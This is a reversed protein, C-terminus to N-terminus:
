ASTPEEGTAVPRRSDACWESWSGPYLRPASVGAAVAALILHCATVGSGCYAVAGRGAADTTVGEFRTALRDVPLFRGDEGLSEACPLSRAGPIHGAVPDLPEEEGLYRPRARADLLVPASAPDRLADGLADLSMVADADYRGRWRSPAATEVGATVPYGAETWAPWGGDLVAVTEVGAYRLMWWLRAAIRGGADDYVVVRQDEAVGLRGILGDIADCSPLPHRGTVGPEIPGSLDEDLHAYVAGPIHATAYAERGRAPARLDFRCDIFRWNADDLGTVALAPDIIPTWM